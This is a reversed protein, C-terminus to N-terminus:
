GWYLPYMFSRKREIHFTTLNIVKDKKTEKAEIPLFHGTMDILM